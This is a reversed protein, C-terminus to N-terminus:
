FHFIQGVSCVSQTERTRRHQQHNDTSTNWYWLQCGVGLPVPLSPGLHFSRRPRVAVSVAATALSEAQGVARQELYLFFMSFLEIFTQKNSM